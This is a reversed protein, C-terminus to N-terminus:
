RADGAALRYLVHKGSRRLVTANKALYGALASNMVVEADALVYTLDYEEVLGRVDEETRAAELRDRAAPNYGMAYVPDGELDVGFPQGVELVRARKGDIASAIRLLSREPVSDEMMRERAQRSFLADVRFGPLVWGSTPMFALNLVLATAAIADFTRGLAPRASLSRPVEAEAVTLLPFVPYLYRAYQVHWLVAFAYVLAVAIAPWPADRRFLLAALVGAPLLLLHQFGFSGDTMEGFRGSRFTMEYLIKWDLHAIWREDKSSDEPPLLRSRFVDNLFPFVPNGTAAWAYLYPVGGVAVLVLAATGTAVALRRRDLSRAMSYIALGVLPVAAFAAPLKTALAGGVCLALLAADAPRQARWSRALLVTAALLFLSLPNEVFLTASELFALPTASYVATLLFASRASIRRRLEAHLLVTVIAHLALNLLRVAPEGGVLHGVTYLWDGGMPFVAWTYRTVDFGWRAHSAVYTPIALHMAVADYMREPLAANVSHVALVLVVLAGGWASVRDEGRVSLHDRLAQLDEKLWARGALMALSLLLVYLPATNVPFHALVQVVGITVALGAALCLLAGERRGFRARLAAPAAVASGLGLAAVLVFAAAAVATVGFAVALWLAALVAQTMRPARTRRAGALVAAALAVFVVFRKVGRGSWAPLLGAPIVDTRAFGWALAALCLLACAAVAATRRLDRTPM